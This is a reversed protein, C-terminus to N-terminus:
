GLVIGRISRVSPACYHVQNLLVIVDDFPSFDRWQGKLPSHVPWRNIGVCLGTAPLKTKNSRRRFWYTHWTHLSQHNSVGDCDNHRWELPFWKHFYPHLQSWLSKSCHIWQIVAFWENQIYYRIFLIIPLLNQSSQQNNPNSLLLFMFSIM